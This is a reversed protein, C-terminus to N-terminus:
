LVVFCRIHSVNPSVSVVQRKKKRVYMLIVHLLPFIELSPRLIRTNISPLLVCTLTIEFCRFLVVSGIIWTYIQITKIRSSDVHTMALKLRWRPSGNFHLPLIKIIFFVTYIRGASFRAVEDVDTPRAIITEGGRYHRSIIINYKNKNKNIIIVTGAHKSKRTFYNFVRVM